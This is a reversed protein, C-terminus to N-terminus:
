MLLFASECLVCLQMSHASGWNRCADFPILQANPPRKGNSHSHQVHKCELHNQTPTTFRRKKATTEWEVNLPAQVTGDRGYRLGILCKCKKCSHAKNPRILIICKLKAPLTYGLQLAIKTIATAFRRLSLVKQGHLHSCFLEFQPRASSNWNPVNELPIKFHVKFIWFDGYFEFKYSLQACRGFVQVTNSHCLHFRNRLICEDFIMTGCTASLRNGTKVRPWEHGTGTFYSDHACICLTAIQFLWDTLRHAEVIFDFAEASLTCQVKYVCM